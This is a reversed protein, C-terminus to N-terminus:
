NFFRELEKLIFQLRANLDKLIGVEEKLSRLDLPFPEKKKLQPDIIEMNKWEQIELNKFKLHDTKIVRSSDQRTSALKKLSKSHHPYLPFVNSFAPSNEDRKKQASM